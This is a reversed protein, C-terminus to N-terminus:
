LSTTEDAHAEEATNFQIDNITEANDDSFSLLLANFNKQKIKKNESAALRGLKDMAKMATDAIRRSTEICNDALSEKYRWFMDSAIEHLSEAIDVSVRVGLKWRVYDRPQLLIANRFIQEDRPLSKMYVSWENQNSVFSLDMFLERFDEIIHPHLSVHYTDNIDASIEEPTLRGILSCEIHRHILRNKLIGDFRDDISRGNFFKGIKLFLVVEYFAKHHLSHM